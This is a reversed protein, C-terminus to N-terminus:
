AEARHRVAHAEGILRPDDHDAEAIDPQREGDREGLMELRGAEVNVRRADGLEALAAVAGALDVLRPEGARRQHEGVLALPRPPRVDVDDGHRGRHVPRVPGIQRRQEARGLQDGAQEVALRRRRDDIFAGDIRADGFLKAAGQELADGAEDLAPVEEEAIRRLADIGAVALVADLPDHLHHRAFVLGDGRLEGLDVAPDGAGAGELSARDLGGLRRLHDLIRLAVDVDGEHVLDGLDEGLEAKRGVVHEGRRARFPIEQAELGAEDAAVADADIGIIEAMARLAEAVQGPDNERTPRDVVAHAGPDGIRNM